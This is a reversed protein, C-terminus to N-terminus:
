HKVAIQARLLYEVHKSSFRDEIDIYPDAASNISREILRKMIDTMSLFHEQEFDRSDSLGKKRNEDPPLPFHNALLKKLETKFYKEMQVTKDLDSEIRSGM